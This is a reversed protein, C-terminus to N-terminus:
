PNAGHVYWAHWLRRVSLLLATGVAAYIVGVVIRPVASGRLLRGAAAMVAVFAWTRWSLFGGVCRGDGRARIREIMRRAARRLVLEGKLVGALAAAALLWAAHATQSALVWRVGFFLLLAGVVTWMLAALLLHVRASAAPKYANLRDAMVTTRHDDPM